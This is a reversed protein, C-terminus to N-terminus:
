HKTVSSTSTNSNYIRMKQSETPIYGLVKELTISAAVYTVIIISLNQCKQLFSFAPKESTNERRRMEQSVQQRGLGVRGNLYGTWLEKKSHAIEVM